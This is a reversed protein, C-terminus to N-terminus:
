KQARLLAELEDFRAHLREVEAGLGAEDNEVFHAAVAATLVAVLGVGVLM